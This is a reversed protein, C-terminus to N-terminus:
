TVDSLFKYRLEIDGMLFIASKLSRETPLGILVLLFLSKYYNQFGRTYLCLSCLTKVIVATKYHNCTTNTCKSLAVHVLYNVVCTSNHSSRTYKTTNTHLLHEHAFHQRFHIHQM